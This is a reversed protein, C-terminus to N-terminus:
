LAQVEEVSRYWINKVKKLEGFTRNSSQKFLQITVEDLDAFLL